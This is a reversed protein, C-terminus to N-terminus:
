GVLERNPKHRTATLSDAVLSVLLSDVSGLLALILAPELARALFGASPLAFPLEPLGTQGIVPTDNLWLVGMLTGAILAALPAPLFNALRRPWLM